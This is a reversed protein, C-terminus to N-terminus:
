ELMDLKAKIKDIFNENVLSPSNSGFTPPQPEFKPEDLAVLDNNNSERHRKNHGFFTKPLKAPRPPRSSESESVGRTYSEPVEADLESYDNQVALNPASDQGALVRSRPM